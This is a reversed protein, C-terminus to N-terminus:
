LPVPVCRQKMLLSPSQVQAIRVRMTAIADGSGHPKCWRAKTTPFLRLVSADRM